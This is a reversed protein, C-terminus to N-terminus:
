QAAARSVDLLPLVEHSFLEVSRTAEALSLDGFVFRCVLYTATSAALQDSLTELVKAPSGAVGFGAKEAEEFTDPYYVYPRPGRADWLQWFSGNWRRYARSAVAAAAQDTEAIVVFRNMGLMPMEAESKGADTWSQRYSDYIPRARDVPANAVINFGQKAALAAGEPRSAGYWMPPHPRQLPRLVMPANRYSYIEGEFDVVERTLAQMLVQLAEAHARSAWQSPEAGYIELEHPSAGKGIGFELRGGSMHDLMCIEEALRLPHYLVLPYVLPCLRLRRTRQVAAALFLNPSPAMGLPTSHHEALHYAHFGAQDYLGLLKLREEYQEGLASGAGDLHDFVGVKMM